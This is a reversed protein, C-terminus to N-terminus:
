GDMRQVQIPSKLQKLAAVLLEVDTPKMRVMRVKSGQYEYYLECFRSSPIVFIRVGAEKVKIEGHHHYKCYVIRKDSLAIGALGADSKPFDCDSFYGIFHEYTDYKFWASVRMRVNEPLANWTDHAANTLHKELEEYDHGCVGNVRGLWQLAYRISPILVDCMVDGGAQTTHCHVSLRSGCPRCVYYPMALNFPESVGEIVPISAVVDRPRHEAHVHIEYDVEINADESARHFVRDNWAMPRAYLLNASHEDCGMCSLPMSARFPVHRLWRSDFGFLVGTPHVELVALRPHLASHQQLQEYKQASPAARREFVPAPAHPAAPAPKQAPRHEPPRAPPAAAPKAAEVHSPAPPKAAPKPPPAVETRAAAEPEGALQESTITQVDSPLDDLLLPDEIPPIGLEEDDDEPRPRQEGDMELWCAITDDVAEQGVPVKFHSQCHSCRATQGAAHRPLTLRARCGPCHIMMDMTSVGISTPLLDDDRRGRRNRPM